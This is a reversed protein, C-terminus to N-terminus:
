FPGGAGTQVESRPRYHLAGFAFALGRRMVPRMDLLTHWRDALEPRHAHACLCAQRAARQGEAASRRATVCRRATGRVSANLMRRVAACVLETAPLVRLSGHVLGALRVGAGGGTLEPAARSCGSNREARRDRQSGGGSGGGRGHRRTISPLSTRLVRRTTVALIGAFIICVARRRWVFDSGDHAPRIPPLMRSCDMRRRPRRSGEVHAGPLEAAAPTHRGHGCGTASPHRRTVTANRRRAPIRTRGPRVTGAM